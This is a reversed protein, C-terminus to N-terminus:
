PFGPVTMRILRAATGRGVAILTKGDPGGFASNTNVILLDGACDVSIGDGGPGPINTKTGNGNRTSILDNPADLM